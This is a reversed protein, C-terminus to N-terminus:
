ADSEETELGPHTLGVLRWRCLSCSPDCHFDNGLYGKPPCLIHLQKTASSRFRKFNMVTKKGM